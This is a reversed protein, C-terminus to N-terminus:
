RRHSAALLERLEALGRPSGIEYFRQTAEFGALEGEALARQYVAALDTPEGPALSEFVSKRFVGLGYDIYAMDPTRVRKDYRMLRGHQFVVNSEDWRDGNALVTMIGDAQEPLESAGDTLKVDGPTTLGDLPDDYLNLSWGTVSVTVFATRM